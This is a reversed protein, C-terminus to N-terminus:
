LRPLRMAVFVAVVHRTPNRGETFNTQNLYGPEVTTRSSFPLHLGVFTLVLAPGSAGSWGTGNLSHFYESWVVTRIGRAAVPVDIRVQERLRFALQSDRERHREELRTRSSIARAGFAIPIRLDIQQVARHERARYGELEEAHTWTYGGGLSLHENVEAMVLGRVLERTIRSVDDTIQLLGDVRIELREGVPATVAVSLWAQVDSGTTQASASVTGILAAAVGAITARKM